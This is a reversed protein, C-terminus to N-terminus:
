IPYLLNIINGFMKEIENSAVPRAICSPVLLAVVFGFLLKILLMETTWPRTWTWVTYEGGSWAPRLSQLPASPCSSLRERTWTLLRWDISQQVGSYHIGASILLPKMKRKKETKNIAATFSTAITTFTFSQLSDPHLCYFFQTYQVLTLDSKLQFIRKVEVTCLNHTRSKATTIVHLSSTM